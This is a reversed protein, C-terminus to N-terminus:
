CMIIAMDHKIKYKLEKLLPARERAGLDDDYLQADSSETNRTKGLQTYKGTRVMKLDHM